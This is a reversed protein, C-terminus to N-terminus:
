GADSVFETTVWPLLDREVVSTIVRGDDLPVALGLVFADTDITFGDRATGDVVVARPQVARISVLETWGPEMTPDGLGYEDRFRNHLIHDVHARLLEPPDREDDGPAASGPAFWHTQVAEWLSPHRMRERRELLWPPLDRPVPRALADEMESTLDALNVPDSRDDPNKWVTYMRAVAASITVADAGSGQGHSSIGAVGLDELHRQPVFGAVAIGLADAEARMALKLDPQDTPVRGGIHM